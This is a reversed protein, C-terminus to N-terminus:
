PWFCTGNRVSFVAMPSKPFLTPIAQVKGIVRSPPLWPWHVTDAARSHLGCVLVAASITVAPVRTCVQIRYIVGGIPNVDDSQRLARDVIEYNFVNVRCLNSHM